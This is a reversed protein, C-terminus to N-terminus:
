AAPGVPARIEAMRDIVRALTRSAANPKRLGPLAFPRLQGLTDATPGFEAVAAQRLQRPSGTRLAHRPLHLAARYFEAQRQAVKAWTREVALTLGAQRRAQFAEEDSLARMVAV